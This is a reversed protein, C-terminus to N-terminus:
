QMTYISIICTSIGAGVMTVIKKFGKENWHDILGQYDVTKLVHQTKSDSEDDDHSLGLKHLFQQIYDLQPKSKDPTPKKYDSSAGCEDNDSESSSSHEHEDKKKDRYENKTPEQKSSDIFVLIFM